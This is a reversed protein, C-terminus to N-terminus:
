ADYKWSVFELITDFRDNGADDIWENIFNKQYDSDNLFFTSTPCMKQEVIENSLLDKM